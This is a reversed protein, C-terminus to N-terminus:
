DRSLTEAAARRRLEEITQEVREGIEAELRKRTEELERDLREALTAIRLGISEDIWERELNSATAEDARSRRHRGTEGSTAKSRSAAAAGSARGQRQIVEAIKLELSAADV